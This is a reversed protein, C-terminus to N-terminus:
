PQLMLPNPVPEGVKSLTNRDRHHFPEDKGRIMMVTDMDYSWTGDDNITVEIRYEVTKFAHNL